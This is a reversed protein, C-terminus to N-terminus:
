INEVGFYNQVDLLDLMEFISIKIVRLCNLLKM